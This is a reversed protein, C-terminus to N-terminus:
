EQLILTHRVGAAVEKVNKRIVTPTTRNENTGDGLQGLDNLGMAYLTGDSKIYFTQRFEGTVFIVDRDIEVPDLQDEVSGTGLQGAENNGLGWLTGNNDIYLTHDRGAAVSQVGSAIRVPSVRSQPHDERGLQGHANSGTGLLSGDSTLFLTHTGGAAVAIVDEDPVLQVAVDLTDRNGTGLQGRDNRGTGWVTNDSRVWVSHWDGAAADIIDDGMKIPSIVDDRTGTGLQGLSNGGMGWLADDSDIFLSHREGATVSEVGSRIEVARLRDTRTGDGLQGYQNYGMGLLMDDDRRIVFSHWSGAAVGKMEMLSLVPVARNINTGDGLQGNFNYGMAWVPNDLEFFVATASIDSQLGSIVQQPDSGALDGQWELFWHGEDPEAILTVEESMAYLEKEPTVAVKGSGETQINVAFGPVFRATVSKEKELPLLVPNESGELEGQWGLFTWGEAPEATLEVALGDEMRKQIVQGEGEVTVSLNFGREFLATVSLERDVLVTDPNSSGELDGQWGMFRWGEDPDATLEVLTGHPHDSRAATAIVAERVTGQGEVEIALTYNRLTFHATVQKNGNVKIPVPNLTGIVDGDWREFVWGEAPHAELNLDTNEDFVGGSPEIVGGEEPTATTSLTFSKKSGSTDCSVIWLSMIAIFPIFINRM